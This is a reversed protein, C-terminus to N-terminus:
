CWLWIVLAHKQLHDILVTFDSQGSFFRTKDILVGVRYRCLLSRRPMQPKEVVGGFDAM